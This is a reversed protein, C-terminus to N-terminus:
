IIFCRAYNFGPAPMRSLRGFRPKSGLFFLAPRTHFPNLANDMIERIRPLALPSTFRALKMSSTSPHTIGGLEEAGWGVGGFLGTTMREQRSPPLRRRRRRDSSKREIERWSLFARAGAEEFPLPKLVEATEVKSRRKRGRGRM